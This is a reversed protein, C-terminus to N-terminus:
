FARITLKVRYDLNFAGLSAEFDLHIGKSAERAQKSTTQERRKAVRLDM